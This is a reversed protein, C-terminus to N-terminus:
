PSTAVQAGRAAELRVAGVRVSANSRDLALAPVVEAKVALSAASTAALRLGYQGYPVSDFLFYGDFETLTRAIVQGRSDVLELGIGERPQSDIGLLTGEVEGTPSLGIAVEAAVGPRPVVVIGRGKPQLLPDAITGADVALVAPAYPRLGDVIVKGEANTQPNGHSFGAEIQVGEVPEEGAEQRGNGNEDRYVTVVAQGNMALKDASMRYGGDALNPGFSFALSLGGGYNGRTGVMAEARLAFRSFKRVYGLTFDAGRSSADYEVGARLDADNGLRTEAQIQATELGREPGSLRFRADGRLRVRGITANALLGLRMGDDNRAIRTSSTSRGSLEATLMLRRLMLSARTFWEKVKSGDRLTRQQVSIGVPITTKGLKFETDLKLGYLRHDDPLVIESEYGGDIWMTEAQFHLKGWKGLAQMRLARGAGFQQAGSLELLMPGVSRRATAELYTRRVGRLVLSQNELSLSTRKDIGREVGVGWRWGTLPDVLRRGFDVLNRDQEIIGAWYYTQGVPISEAGVPVDVRERRIQGQPGYLVVELANDGFMLEVDPFEYRGDTRDTQLSLLQGNRYLEADWGNPLEGRLTTAAFRSPRAIPRNSIFLGRGVASQGTLAGAYTEVDGAAVQTAHLPGLLGGAPDNRYAKVRLSTPVGQMDSSLRADYSVGLAEGSAYAEYQVDTSTGAGPTGRLAASVLVDVSPSRWSRYPVEQHPLKALDFTGHAGQLRAARSRREIASLFPLKRSTELVIRLNGLDARFTVGFWASLAATDACWGEPTDIIDRAGIRREINVNQVTSSDRDLTFRESEAFLWGTARRSKRDLRVPLDIAQILDAMDVCIGSPTQYGRLTDGLKYTGSHLELLLADDENAQWEGAVAPAPAACVAFAAAICAAAKKGPFSPWATM